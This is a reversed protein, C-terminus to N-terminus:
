PFRLNYVLLWPFHDYDIRRLKIKFSNLEASNLNKLNPFEESYKEIIKQTLEFPLLHWFKWFLYWWIKTTNYITSTWSTQLLWPKKDSFYHLVHPIKIKNGTRLWEIKHLIFNYKQHIHTWNDFAFVISQEDHTSYCDFGFKGKKSIEDEVTKIYKDYNLKNPELLILSGILTFGGNILNKLIESQQVLKGHETPYGTLKFPGCEDFEYGWPSSFTAAPAKLEFLHDINQVVIIDADLFIVKDYEWLLLCQAKTYSQSIWSGYITEQKQTKLKASPFELYSVEVIRASQSILNRMEQSVDPTVMCVIDWITKTQLLSFATIAAGFGYKDGKMVLIVYARKKEKNNDFILSM